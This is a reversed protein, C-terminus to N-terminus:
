DETESEDLDSLIRRLEYGRDTGPRISEAYKRLTDIDANSVSEQGRQSLVRSIAQLGWYQGFPKDEVNTVSEILGSLKDSYPHSYLFGYASLRRGRDNQALEEDIDFASIQPVLDIMRRVIETMASTRASGSRKTARIHNYKEALLRLKTEPDGTKDKDATSLDQSQPAAAIALSAKHSASEAAGTAEDVRRQLDQLEVKGIGPLEISKILPALWPLVAFILLGLTVGDIELNPWILKAGAAALAGVTVAVRLGRYEM